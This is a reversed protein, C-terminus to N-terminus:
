IHLRIKKKFKEEDNFLFLKIKKCEYNEYHDQSTIYSTLKLEPLFVCYQFMGNERCKKNFLYGDHQREMLDSNKNCMHLLTSENQVKRIRKMSVNIYDLDQIWKNYFNHSTVSLNTLGHVQQFKIMNLLDPLRRIPSTIHVYADLQLLDHRVGSVDTVSADVYKGSTASTMMKLTYLIDRPVSDPIKTTENTENTDNTDNKIDNKIVSRFLGTKSQLLEKACFYNTLVMLYCVVDHSDRISEVYPYKASLQRVTNLIDIYGKNALLSREEYRHNKAVKIVCNNYKIDTITGDNNIYLDVVFAVRREKEQLSCLCDSLVTPLMTRKRDPLYITSVRKSFSDWLNLTDLYLSVNSIYISLMKTDGIDRISVADDFDLSDEPDISIVHWDTRDQINEYNTLIRDIIEDHTVGKLAKNTDRHFKQISANISNCFLQYEYFHETCDVPGIVNDLKAVPHKDDWNDYTVTVYMNKFAKSFAVKKMEYPVLFAPLATDDPICKYLFRQSNKKDKDKSSQGYTKNGELILVAPFAGGLRLPSHTITVNNNNDLTFEDNSLLKSKIPSIDVDITLDNTSQSVPEVKWSTYDRNQVTVKYIM